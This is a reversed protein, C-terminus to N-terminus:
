TAGCCCAQGSAAHPMHLFCLDICCKGSSDWKSLWESPVYANLYKYLFTQLPLHEFGAPLSCLESCYSLDVTRLLQLQAISDPLAQLSSCGALKLAELCQLKGLSNPLLRLGICCNLNLVKLRQLNTTSDPLEKLESCGSLDLRIINVLNGLEHPLQELSSSATFALHLLAPWRPAQFLTHPLEACPWGRLQLWRLQPAVMKGILQLLHSCEEEGLQQCAGINLIELKSSWAAAHGHQVDRSFSGEAEQVQLWRLNTGQTLLSTLDDVTRVRLVCLQALPPLENITCSASRAM